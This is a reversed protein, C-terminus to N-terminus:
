IRLFDYFYLGVQSIMMGFVTFFPHSDTAFGEAVLLGMSAYFFTLIVGLWSYWTFPM